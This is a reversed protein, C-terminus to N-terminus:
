EQTVVFKLSWSMLTSVMLLGAMAILGASFSGTADRLWGMAYPGVFGGITAVSNIFALGGAAALGTLFRTPITWLIARASTTGILALTIWALSVWFNPFVVALLLGIASALCALALHTIKKGTRAVWEAWGIMAVSALLYCGGTVFGIQLNSLRADKMIQPLWIAIAYSGAIFGFQSAALLLVRPDKLAAALHRKERERPERDLAARVLLREEATLFTADEPRDPLLWLAALGLLVVPLGEVFFLWQWGSMGAVGNMQLLLGSVPGGVVTSAPVAILFWALM